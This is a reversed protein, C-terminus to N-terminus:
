LYVSYLFVVYAIYVLMLIIAQLRYIKKKMFSPIVLTLMIIIAVPFDLLINQRLIKLPNVFASIGTVMTINLINAGVINGISINAHGKKLATLATAFEPLSTGVAIISLAIVSEPVGIGKAIIVGSHILLEAGALIAMAGLIFFLGIKLKMKSDLRLKENVVKKGTKNKLIFFDICVYIILMAILILSDQKSVTGDLALFSMVFFYSIMLISKLKFFNSTIKSPKIINVFALILGINCIVSGVANGLSMTTYRDQAASISVVSEPLTTAFSVITAGILVEPLGSARALSIASETFWDGGKVILLLGIFFILIAYIM